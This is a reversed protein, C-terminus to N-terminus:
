LWSSSFTSLHMCGPYWIAPGVRTEKAALLDANNNFREQCDLWPKPSGDRGSAFCRPCVGDLLNYHRCQALWERKFKWDGKGLVVHLTFGGALAGDEKNAKQLSMALHQQLNDLTINQGSPGYHFLESRIVKYENM